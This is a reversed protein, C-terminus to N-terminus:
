SKFKLIHGKLLIFRNKADIFLLTITPPPPIRKWLSLFPCQQDSYLLSLRELLSPFVLSFVSYHPWLSSAGRKPGLSPVPILLLSSCLGQDPLALLCYIGPCFAGLVSHHGPLSFLSGWSAGSSICLIDWIYRRIIVCHVSWVKRCGEQVRPSLSSAM